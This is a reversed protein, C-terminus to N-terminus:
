VGRHRRYVVHKLLPSKWGSLIKRMPSDVKGYLLLKEILIIASPNLLPIKTTPQAHPLVPEFLGNVTIGTEVLKNM